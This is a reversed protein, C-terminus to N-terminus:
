IKVADAILGNVLLAPSIGSEACLRPYLSTETFGPMTNIENFIIEGSRTRFFDIRSLARLGLYEALLSAYSQILGVERECVSARSSVKATSGFYKKEYDYFGDACIEGVVTFVTKGRASFYGCELEREVDILEEILARGSGVKLAGELVRTLEERCKAVSAGVSSGLRAPKVFMPYGIKEEAEKITKDSLERAYLWRATPIGLHEAILKVYSKDRTVASAVTDCGVYPIGANELAGQVVGDEGFDGHLLPFAAAIPLFASDTLLGGVPKGFAPSCEEEPVAGDALARPCIGIGRIAPIIWTGDKKVYVPIKRYKSGDILPFLYEAGRVSIDHEYGRGGFIM